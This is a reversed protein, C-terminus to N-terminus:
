PSPVSIQGVFLDVPRAAMGSAQGTCVQRVGSPSAYWYSDGGAYGTNTRTGPILQSNLLAGTLSFTAAYSSYGPNSLGANSAVGDITVADRFGGTVVLGTAFAQLSGVTACPTTNVSAVWRTMGTTGDFAVIASASSSTHVTPGTGFDISGEISAGVYATGDPGIAVADGWDRAPTGFSRAWNTSGDTSDFSIVPLDQLGAFPLPGGGLDPSGEMFGTVVVRRGRVDMGRVSNYAAVGFYRVWRVTGDSGYRLVIGCTAPGCSVVFPGVAFTGRASGSVYIDGGTDVRVNRLRDDPPFPTDPADSGFTRVWSFAHSADYRVLFADSTGASTVRSPGFDVGGSFYGGAYVNGSGDLAVDAIVDDGAGGIHELWVVRRSVDLQLLWGDRLGRSALMADAIRLTGSFSGYLLAGGGPIAVVGAGGITDDSTAFAISADSYAYADLEGADQPRDPTVDFSVGADGSDNATDQASAADLGADRADDASADRVSADRPIADMPSDLEVRADAGQADTQSRESLPVADTSTVDRVAVDIEPADRAAADVRAISPTTIYRVRGCAPSGALVGCLM